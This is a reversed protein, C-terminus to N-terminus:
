DMCIDVPLNNVTQTLRGAMTRTTVKLLRISDEQPRITGMVLGTDDLTYERPRNGANNNEISRDKVEIWVYMQLCITSQRLRGELWLELPVKSSACQIKRHDYKARKLVQIISPAGVVVVYTM